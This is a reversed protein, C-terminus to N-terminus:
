VQKQGEQFDIERIPVPEYHPLKEQIAVLRVKYLVSPLFKSGLSGWLHNQQEFNMSYLEVILKEITGNMAPTNTPTFVNKGQLFSIAASLMKLGSSYDSFHAAILVYLNLKIEPNMKVFRDDLSRTISEQSKLVREEEINVLAMGLNNLDIAVEGGSKLMNSLMINGETSGPSGSLSKLYGQIEDKLIEM